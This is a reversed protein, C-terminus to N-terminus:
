TVTAKLQSKACANLPTTMDNQRNHSYYIFETDTLGIHPGWEIHTGLLSIYIQTDMMNWNITLQIRDLAFMCM